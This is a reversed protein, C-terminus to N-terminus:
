IYMRERERERERERKKAKEKAIQQSDGKKGEKRDICIIFLLSKLM